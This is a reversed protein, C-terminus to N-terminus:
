RGPVLDGLLQTKIWNLAAAGPGDTWGPTECSQYEFSLVDRALMPLDRPLHLNATRAAAACCTQYEVLDAYGPAPGPFRSMDDVDCDDYRAAVSRANYGALEAAILGAIDERPTADTVSEFHYQAYAIRAPEAAYAAIRGVTAHDTIYCSM